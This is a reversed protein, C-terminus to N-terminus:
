KSGQAIRRAKRAARELLERMARLGTTEWLLARLLRRNRQKAPLSAYLLDDIPRAGHTVMGSYHLHSIPRREVQIVRCLDLVNQYSAAHPDAWDHPPKCLNLAPWKALALTVHLLAQDHWVPVEPHAEMWAVGALLDATHRPMRRCLFHGATIAQELAGSGMLEEFRDPQKMNFIGGTTFELDAHVLDYQELYTFLQEWNMLAVIDNDSYLFEDFEGFWCLFRRLFGLPCNPIRRKLEEVFALGEAPFDSMSLLKVDEWSASAPLPEGGFPIVRIPLRCGCKRVSYILNACEDASRRNAVLYIGQNL